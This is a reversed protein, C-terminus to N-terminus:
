RNLKVPQAYKMFVLADSKKEAKVNEFGALLSMGFAVTDDYKTRKNHKYAM